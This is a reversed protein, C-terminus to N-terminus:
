GDDDCDDESFVGGLLGMDLGDLTALIFTFGMQLFFSLGQLVDLLCVGEVNVLNFRMNRIARTANEALFLEIRLVQIALLISIRRVVGGLDLSVLRGDGAEVGVRWGYDSVLSLWIGLSYQEVLGDCTSNSLNKERQMLVAGLGKKSADCYAIFDESGEPLALNTCLRFRDTRRRSLGSRAGWPSSSPRIFGKDSLEKLQESLEKMESPALRYPARAVPAAGPVLDIQFEVQRTPPLGPLDEPFVLMYKAPATDEM